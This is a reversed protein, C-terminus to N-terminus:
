SPGLEAGLLGLVVAVTYRSAIDAIINGTLASDAIM